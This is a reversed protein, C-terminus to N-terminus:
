MSLYGGEKPIMQTVRILNLSGEELIITLLLMIVSNGCLAIVGWKYIDGVTLKGWWYPVESEGVTDKFRRCWAM